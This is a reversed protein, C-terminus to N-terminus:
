KKFNIVVMRDNAWRIRLLTRYFGGGEVVEMVDFESYTKMGELDICIKVCM